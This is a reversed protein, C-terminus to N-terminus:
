RGIGRQPIAAREPPGAVRENLPRLRRRKCHYCREPDNAAILPDDLEGADVEILEAGQDWALERARRAEWPPTFPGGCLVAKVGPGLAQSAAALLLSSDVGGSYAVVLPALEALRQSLRRWVGELSPPLEPKGPM